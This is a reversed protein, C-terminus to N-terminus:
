ELDEGVGEGPKFADPPPPIEEPAPVDNGHWAGDGGPGGYRQGDLKPVHTKTVKNEHKGGGCGFLLSVCIMGVLIRPRGNIHVRSTARLGESAKQRSM